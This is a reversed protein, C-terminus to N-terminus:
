LLPFVCFDASSLHCYFHQILRLVSYGSLDVVGGLM